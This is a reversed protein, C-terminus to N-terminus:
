KGQVSKRKNLMLLLCYCSAAALLHKITHGSVIEGSYLFIPQDAFEAAKALFYLALAVLLLWNHSYGNRFLVMVVPIMLLPILQVWVYPRLDDSWHWYLVSALGLVVAPLLLLSMLRSETYEGLLAVLLGMFGVSMPLRDWVLSQNDPSWHYYGSGFSVLGVGLFLVAWAGGVGRPRLKLCTRLGLVGVILFPLNSIVDLCNPIGLMERNDAFAHYGTDQAIPELSLIWLLSGLVLTALVGYRWSLMRRFVTIIPEPASMMKRPAM